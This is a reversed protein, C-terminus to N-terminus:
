NWVIASKTVFRLILNVAGLITANIEPTLVWGWMSQAVIAVLALTNVWFTKSEWFKKKM